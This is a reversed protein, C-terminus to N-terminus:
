IRVQIIEDVLQMDMIAPIFGAGIGQVRVRLLEADLCASCCLLNLYNLKFLKLKESFKAACHVAIVNHILDPDDKVKDATGLTPTPTLQRLLRVPRHVQSAVNEHCAPLAVSSM